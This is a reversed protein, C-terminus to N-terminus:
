CLNGSLCDHRWAPAEVDAAESPWETPSPYIECVVLHVVTPGPVAARAPRGRNYREVAMKRLRRARSRRNRRDATFPWENKARVHARWSTSDFAHLAPRHEVYVGTRGRRRHDFLLDPFRLTAASRVFRIPQAFAEVRRDMEVTRPYQRKVEEGSPNRARQGISAGSWTRL